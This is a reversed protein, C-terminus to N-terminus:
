QHTIGMFKIMKVLEHGFAYLDEPRRSTILNGDVVVEKDEYRAGALKVDDRITIYCTARRQNLVGASILIQPGHCIAAVPKNEHFFHRTIELAKAELRVKEPARGGPLILIDFDEPDVEDFSLDAKASYGHKGTITGKNMSAITVGIQEEKLRNLPYFLEQDDFDDGSLILAKMYVVGNPIMSNGM